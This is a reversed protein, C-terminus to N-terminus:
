KIRKRIKYHRMRSKLNGWSRQNRWSRGRLCIKVITETEAAGSSLKGAERATEAAIGKSFGRAM